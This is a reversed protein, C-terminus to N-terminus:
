GNDVLYQKTEVFTGVRRELICEVYKGQLLTRAEM